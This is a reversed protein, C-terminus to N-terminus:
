GKLSRFLALEAGVHASVSRAVPGSPNAALAAAERLLEKAFADQAQVQYPPVVIDYFSAGYLEHEVEAVLYDRAHELNGLASDVLTYTQDGASNSEIGATAAELTDTGFLGVSSNLQKYDTALATVGAAQLAPPVYDLLQSIVRGDPLYMEKLGALYLMTPQIDTEDVWTGNNAASQQTVTEQGSNPGADNPGAAAGAGDLGLHAVDPGVFGVWNNNIEAAYAGHDWAYKSNVAVCASTCNAPGPQVWFDPKAFQTFTPTRAPDANVLHLIAEETPDALYNTLPETVGAYPNAVTLSAVDRELTRAQTSTAAPNGTVYFQPAVGAQLTFPVTDTTETALLGNVNTDLEGLSGAPYTCPTGPTVVGGSVTAGNCNAPTPQVARGVNAAAEHDGEDNSFVFTTNKPTIGDAALRKFFAAFARDYYQAQALYCTSGSGQASGAGYCASLGPIYENGHLDSLYAYTVPVGTEQMDAVYALAQSANISYGPFGPHNTLYAGDLENGNLDVLNGKANTVEFGNHSLNPKGAGLQPAVYRHGHLAQFGFYGGPIGPLSEAIATHSPKTQGYKVAEATSCFTASRACHVSIGIYDATEADKYPDTDAALQQAEPSNPGFVAPIDSPSELDMNASAVEGVNCGAKTWPVWPAPTIADPTVPTPSTAPPVPSYVMSPNTDHGPNPPSATDAVPDTWYVFSTAPDTTGDKNYALYSNSIPMGARDGYLGTYTTMSDTATHAILPTHNNSLLAGNHEIFSLLHPMLELDSPVNPNDRNFHVNDFFIEIVHQIGNGLKCSPPATARILSASNAHPQRVGAGSAAGVGAAATAAVAALAAAVRGLAKKSTVAWSGELPNLLRPM